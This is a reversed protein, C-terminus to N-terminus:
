PVEDIFAISGEAVLPEVPLPPPIPGPGPGPVQGDVSATLVWWAGLFTQPGQLILARGAAYAPDPCYAGSLPPTRLAPEPIGVHKTGM